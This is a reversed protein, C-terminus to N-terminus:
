VTYLTTYVGLVSATPSLNKLSCLSQLRTVYASPYKSYKISWCDEGSEWLLIIRM